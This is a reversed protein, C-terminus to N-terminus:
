TTRGNIREAIWSQVTSEPCAATRQGVKVSQPFIGKRMQEYIASRRLGTLREVDPLRLLRDSARKATQMPPMTAGGRLLTLAEQLLHAAQLARQAGHDAAVRASPENDTHSRM